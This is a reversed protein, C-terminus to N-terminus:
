FSIEVFNKLWYAVVILHVYYGLFFDDNYIKNKYKNYFKIWDIGKIGKIEDSRCFHAKDYSGDDHSSMDPALAGFLFRNYDKNDIAKVLLDAIAYHMMRSAM